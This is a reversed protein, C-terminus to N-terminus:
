QNINNLETDSYSVNYAAVENDLAAINETIQNATAKAALTVASRATTNPTTSSPPQVTKANGLFATAIVLISAFVTGTLALPKFLQLSRKKRQARTIEKMTNKTFNKSPTYTKHAKMIEKDLKDM